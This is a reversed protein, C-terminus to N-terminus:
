ASASTAAVRAWAAHARAARVTRHESVGGSTPLGRNGQWRGGAVTSSMFRSTVTMAAIPARPSPLRAAACACSFRKASRIGFVLAVAKGAAEGESMSGPGYWIVGASRGAPTHTMLVAVPAKRKHRGGISAAVAM